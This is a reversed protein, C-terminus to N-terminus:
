ETSSRALLSQQLIKLVAYTTEVRPCPVNHQQAARLVGGVIGEIEIPRGAELDVLMSPKFLGGSGGEGYIDLTLQLTADVVSDPLLTESIGIARAIAINERMISAVHPLTLALSQMTCVSRVDLRSMACLTSFGVNWLNKRWREAEINATPVPNAGGARLCRTVLDLDGQAKDKLGAEPGHHIGIV